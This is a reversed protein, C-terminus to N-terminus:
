RFERMAIPGAPAHPLPALYEVLDAWQRETLHVRNRHRRLAAEIDARSRTGPEVPAHCAGCKSRHVRAIPPADPSGASSAPSSTAGSCGALVVSAALAPGLPAIALKM